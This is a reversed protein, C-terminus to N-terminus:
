DMPKRTTPMAVPTCAIPAGRGVQIMAMDKDTHWFSIKTKAGSPTLYRTGTAMHTETLLHKNGRIELVLTNGGDSTTRVATKGCTFSAQTMAPVEKVAPTQDENAACGMLAASALIVFAVRNIM